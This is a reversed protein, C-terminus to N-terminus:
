GGVAPLRSHRPVHFRTECAPCQGPKGRSAPDTRLLNGCAPCPFVFRRALMPKQRLIAELEFESIATSRLSPGGANNTQRFQSM